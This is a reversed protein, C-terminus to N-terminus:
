IEVVAPGVVPCVFFALKFVEGQYEVTLVTAEVGSHSQGCDDKHDVELIRKEIKM